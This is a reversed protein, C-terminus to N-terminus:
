EYTEEMCELLGRSFSVWGYMEGDEFIQQKDEVKNLDYNEDACHKIHKHKAALKLETLLFNLKQEDTM